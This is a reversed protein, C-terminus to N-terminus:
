RMEWKMEENQNMLALRAGQDAGLRGTGAYRSAAEDVEDMWVISCVM